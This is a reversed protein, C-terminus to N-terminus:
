AHFQHLVEGERASAGNPSLLPTQQRCTGTAQHLRLLACAYSSVTWRKLQACSVSHTWVPIAHLHCCWDPVSDSPHSDPQHCWSIAPMSVRCPYVRQLLSLVLSVHDVHRSGMMELWDPLPGYAEFIRTCVPSIGLSGVLAKAPHFGCCAAPSSFVTHSSAQGGVWGFRCLLAQPVGPM